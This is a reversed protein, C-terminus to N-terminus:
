MAGKRKLTLLLRGLAEQIQPDDNVRADNIYVAQAPAGSRYEDIAAAIRGAGGKNLPVIGEGAHPTDGVIARTPRSVVAGAAFSHMEYGVEPVTGKKADFRGSLSFTPYTGHVDFRISKHTGVSDLARRIRSAGSEASRVASSMASATSSSFSKMSAAAGKAGASQARLGAVSAGASAALAASGSAAARSASAAAGLGGASAASAAAISSLPGVMSQIPAAAAQIQPAADSMRQGLSGVADGVQPLSSALQPAADVLGQANQAAQQVGWGFSAMKQGLDGMAWSLAGVPVALAAMPLALAATPVAAGLAAAAFLALAPGLAAMGAAATVSAAAVAPLAVALVATGASAVIAGAGAVLAGAGMVLLGAGAALAAPGMMLSAAAVAALSAAAMPGAAAVTPMQAALASIGLSAIGIGAGVMLVAAGIALLGPVAAASAPAIAVLAAAMGVAGAAMLAMAVGAGPGAAAIQIAAQAIVWVGASALAVGAGIAAVALGVRLFGAAGASAQQGGAALKQGLGGAAAAAAPAAKQVGAIGVTLSELFPRASQAAKLGKVAVVFGVVAGPNQAAATAVKAIAAAAQGLPPAVARAVPILQNLADGIGKGIAKPDVSEGGMAERFSSGVQSAAQAFGSADIGGGLGSAFSKAANGLAKLKPVASDVLGTISDTFSQIDGKSVLSDFVTQGAKEVSAEIQGMAAEVTTTSNAAKKAADTFGLKQIAKNFEDASVQGDSLADNFNGQYAGAKALEKQIAKSAGPMDQAFVKWDAYSVKGAANMQVLQQAALGFSQANGGAAMNLNGLAMTLKDFGKVGNSGLQAATNMVDNLDYVSADAYDQMDSKAKAIQKGSYGAFSMTGEFRKLTDSARTAMPVVAAAGAAAVAAGKGAISAAKGLAGAVSKAAPAMLTAFTTAAGKAATGIEATRDVINGIRVGASMIGRGLSGGIGIGVDAFRAQIKGGASNFVDVTAAASKESLQFMSAIRKQIGTAAEAGADGLASGIGSSAKAAQASAKSIQAAMAGSLRKGISAGVGEADVAGLQRSISKVGGKFTPVITVYASGIDTAM